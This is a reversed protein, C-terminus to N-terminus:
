SLRLKALTNGISEAMFHFGLDNPHTTDVTCSDEWEGKFFGEGDIYYVNKDGQELAFRFTDLIVNRRLVANEEHRFFDPKSIMVYPLDPNKERIRQYMRCHTDRLHEVTPANHDYDSVFASMPLGAMYDVMLEEAKFSGSFGLNIYDLNLRRAIMNQYCNGPRSACGGQTISSGAFVVPRANRYSLGEGLTADEQLGIELSSVDNYLPFNITLYRTERTKFRLISVYGDTMKVDPHFTGCFSPRYGAPDDEYLDFGSSGTLPMHAFKSVTPMKARIIVYGSDTSFRVRGGATNTYLQAVGSNVNRGIEDPLRKFGGEKRPQYFGYLSFPEELVTHYRVDPEKINSEGFMLRDPVAQNSM